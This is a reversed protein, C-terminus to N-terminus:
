RQRQAALMAQLAAPIPVHEADAAALQRSANLLATLHDLDEAAAHVPVTIDAITMTKLGKVGVIEVPPTEALNLRVPEGRDRGLLRHQLLLDGHRVSLRTSRMGRLGHKGAGYLIILIIPLVLVAGLPGSAWAALFFTLGLLPMGLSIAAAVVPRYGGPIEAQWGDMGASINVAGFADLYESDDMAPDYSM